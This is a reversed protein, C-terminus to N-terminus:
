PKRYELASGVGGLLPFIRSVAQCAAMGGWAPCDVCSNDMRGVRRGRRLGRALHRCVSEHLRQLGYRRRLPRQLEPFEAARAAQM